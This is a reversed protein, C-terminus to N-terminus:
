LHYFSNEAEKLLERCVKQKGMSHQPICRGAYSLFHGQSVICIFLKYVAQYMSLAWFIVLTINNNNAKEKQTEGSDSSDVFSQPPPNRINLSNYYQRQWLSYFSMSFVNLWPFLALSVCAGSSHSRNTVSGGISQFLEWIFSKASIWVNIFSIYAM